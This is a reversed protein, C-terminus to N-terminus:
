LSRPRMREGEAWERLDRLAQQALRWAAEHTMRLLGEPAKVQDIWDHQWVRRGDDYTRTWVVRGQPDLVTVDLALQADFEFDGAGGVIPLPIMWLLHSHYSVRVSQVILTATYRTDDGAADELREAGGSFVEGASALVAQAVIRGIPIRMGQAPGDEGEHVLDKVPPQLLVAVRGPAPTDPTAPTRPFLAVDLPMERRSACGPLLAVSLLLTLLAVRRRMM